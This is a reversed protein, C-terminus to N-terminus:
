REVLRADEKADSLDSTTLLVSHMADQLPSLTACLILLREIGFKWECEDIQSHHGVAGKREVFPLYQM